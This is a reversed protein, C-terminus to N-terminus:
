VHQVYYYLICTLPCTKSRTLLNTFLLQKRSIQFPQKDTHMVEFQTNSTCKNKLAM